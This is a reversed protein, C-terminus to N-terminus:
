PNQPHDPHDELDEIIQLVNLEHEPVVTTDSLPNLTMNQPCPSTLYDVVGQALASAVREQYAPTNLLVLKAPKSLYGIEALVAPVTAHNTVYLGRSRVWNGSEPIGAVMANQIREAPCQSSSHTYYTEIGDFTKDTHANSHVSLFLDPQIGNSMTVRDSLTVFVDTSRTMVVTAGRARLKAALDLAVALNIDKEMVLAGRQGKPAPLRRSAGADHGGHGADVVITKGKLTLSDDAQPAPQAAQETNNKASKSDANNGNTPSQGTSVAKGDGRTLTGSNPTAAKSENATADLLRGSLVAIPALVLTFFAILMVLPGMKSNM